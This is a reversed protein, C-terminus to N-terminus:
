AGASSAVWRPPTGTGSWGSSSRRGRKGSRPGPTGASAALSCSARCGAGPPGHTGGPTGDWEVLLDERVVHLDSRGEGFIEGLVDEPRLSAGNATMSLTLRAAQRGLSELGLLDRGLDFSHVRGNRQREIVRPGRSRFRAIADELDPEGPSEIRYRAAKVAEGLAAGGRDAEQVELLRLGRPLAAGVTELFHRRELPERVELDVYEGESSIGVSLAPGFAVKPKPNFGQSYVLPVRARRLARLLARMLDLHGLFRARGEKAFRVRYRWRPGPEQEATRTGPLLPPADEARAPAGPGPAAPTSLIPLSDQLPRDTTDRVIGKVCERAFPACGHCSTPGCIALTGAALARKLELALWKRNVRSDVVDWPLRWSPNWDGHAYMEPDIGEEAFAKVWASRLFTETWGDFRAGHRWARELVPALARDGRSFVAELFSTECEHHKFNVGRRVRSAIRDQKRYLSERREQGMWQFPTEAKPIFSSASLTIEPQRRGRATKRGV